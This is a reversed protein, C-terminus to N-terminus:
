AAVEQGRRRIVTRLSAIDARLDANLQEAIRLVETVRALERAVGGGEPIRLLGCLYGISVAHARDNADLKRFLRRAHTKITDEALNLERGIQGNSMGRSMGRLVQLERPTPATLQTTM